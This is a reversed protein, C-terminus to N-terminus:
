GKEWPSCSNWPYVRDNEGKGSPAELGSREMEGGSRRVGPHQQSAGGGGFRRISEDRKGAPCIKESYERPLLEEFKGGRKCSWDPCFSGGAEERGAFPRNLGGMKRSSSEKCLAVEKERKEARARAFRHPTTGLGEVVVPVKEGRISTVERRELLGLKRKLGLLLELSATKRESSSLSKKRHSEKEQPM